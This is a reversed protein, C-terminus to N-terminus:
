TGVNPLCLTEALPQCGHMMSCPTVNWFVAKATIARRGVFTLQWSQRIIASATKRMCLSTRTIPVSHVHPKSYKHTAGYKSTQSSRSAQTTLSKYNILSSPDQVIQLPDIKTSGSRYTISRDQHVRFSKYHISRPPGQVIHLPDIKTSGSRNTISRDQHVRFSIYHVSRPPGQVIHLPGIKTSGSRNTISRHQHVRISKYNIPRPPGQVIQLPDIKTSGTTLSTYITRLLLLPRTWPIKARSETQPFVSIANQM